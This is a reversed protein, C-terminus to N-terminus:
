RMHRNTITNPYDSTIGLIESELQSQKEKILDAIVRRHSGSDKHVKLYRHTTYKDNKCVGSNNFSPNKKSKCEFNALRFGLIKTRELITRLPHVM